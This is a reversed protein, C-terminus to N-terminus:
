ARRGITWSGATAKTNTGTDKGLYEGLDDVILRVIDTSTAFNASNYTFTVTYTGQQGGTVTGVPVPSQNAVYNTIDSPLGFDTGSKHQLTVASFENGEIPNTQDVPFDLVVDKLETNGATNKIVIDFNFSGGAVAHDITVNTATANVDCSSNSSSSVLTDFTGVRAIARSGDYRYTYLGLETNYNDSQFVFTPDYVDYYTGGGNFLATYETDTSAVDWNTNSGSGDSVNVSTFNNANPDQPNTGAGYLDFTGDAAAFSNSYAEQAVITIDHISLQRGGPIANEPIEGTETQEFPILSCDIVNGATDYCIDQIPTTGTWAAYGWVALGALLILAIIAVVPQVAGKNNM